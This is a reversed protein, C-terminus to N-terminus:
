ELLGAIVVDGGVVLVDSLAGGLSDLEFGLEFSFEIGLSFDESSDDLLLFSFDGLVVGVDGVDVCGSGFFSFFEFLLDEFVVFGGGDDGFASSDESFIELGGSSFADKDLLGLSDV